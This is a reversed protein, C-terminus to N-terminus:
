AISKVTKSWSITAMHNTFIRNAFMQKLKSQIAKTKIGYIVPNLSPPFILFSISMFKQLLPPFYPLRYVLVIIIGSFEYILFVLLHTACTHVAKGKSETDKNRLCTVLIWTYSFVVSFIGLGHLLGTIFLGYINNVTTDTACTLRLLSVNDCYFNTLATKCFPFRLTLVFLTCILLFDSLWASVILKIVCSRTMINHYRLPYCIAIYRDFAMISMILLTAGGYMHLCVAQILCEPFTISRDESVMDWMTRPFFASIGILDNISLNCLFAYMPEHLSKNMAILLLLILNCAVTFCYIVIGFSITVYAGKESLGFNSTQSGDPSLTYVSFRSFA